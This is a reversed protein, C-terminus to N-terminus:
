LGDSYQVVAYKGYWVWTYGEKDQTEAWEKEVKAVVDESLGSCTDAKCTRLTLVRVGSTALDQIATRFPTTKPWMLDGLMKRHNLDGKLIVLNSDKLDEWVNNGGGLGGQKIENFSYATTWFSSSRIVIKGNGHYDALREVLYDIDPRDDVQGFFGPNMLHNFIHLVDSPLVDSVFWGINKPHLVITEALGSDLLFLAYVLDTYLEFGANDLVIDIRGGKEALLTQWVESLDNALINKENKKRTEAGQLAQIEELTVNTLLSLDTANGWLSVDTFERFLVELTEDNLKDSSLQAELSKYRKALEFVATKSHLFTDNKQRLFVDYHKWHETEVFFTALRRYLYCESYLWPATLWTDHGPELKELQRNYDVIDKGYLDGEPLPSIKRNHELEYKLTVVKRILEMGETIKDSESESLSQVTRYLDDIAGTLIVPWRSRASSWAFSKEDNNYYPAPVSM